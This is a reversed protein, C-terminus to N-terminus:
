ICMCVYICCRCNTAALTELWRASRPTWGTVDSSVCLSVSDRSTVTSWCRVNTENQFAMVATWLSQVREKTKSLHRESIQNIRIAGSWYAAANQLVCLLQGTVHCQQWSSRQWASAPLPSLLPVTTSTSRTVSTWQCVPLKDYSVISQALNAATRSELCLDDGHTVSTSTWHQWTASRADQSQVVVCWGLPRWNVSRRTHHQTETEFVVGLLRHTTGDVRAPWTVCTESRDQHVPLLSAFASSKFCDVMSRGAFTPRSSQLRCVLTSRRRVRAGHLRQVRATWPVYLAHQWRSAVRFVIRHIVHLWQGGYIEQYDYNKIVTAFAGM